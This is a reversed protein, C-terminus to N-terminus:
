VSSFSKKLKNKVVKSKGPEGYIRIYVTKTEGSVTDMVFAGIVGSKDTLQGAVTSLQYRGFNLSSSAYDTSACLLFITAISGAGLLFYKLQQKWLTNKNNMTNDM